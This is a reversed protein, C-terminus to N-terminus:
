YCKLIQYNFVKRRLHVPAAKVSPCNDVHGGIISEDGKVTGPSLICKKGNEDKRGLLLVNCAPTRALNQLGGSSGLLSAATTPGVLAALEPAVRSMREEVYNSIIKRASSLYEAM